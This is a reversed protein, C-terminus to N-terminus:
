LDVGHMRLTTVISNAIRKGDSTEANVNITFNRDIPVWTIGGPSSFAPASAPAQRYAPSNLFQTSDELLRIGAQKVTEAVKSIGENLTDITKLTLSAVGGQARAYDVTSASASRAAGELDYLSDTATEGAESAYQLTTSASGASRSLSEASRAVDTLAESQMAAARSMSDALSTSAKAATAAAATSTESAERATKGVDKLGDSAESATESVRTLSDEFMETKQESPVASKPQSAQAGLRTNIEQLTQLIPHIDYCQEKITVLEDHIMGTMVRITDLQYNGAPDVGPLWKNLTDQIALLQSFIERTTVEIRGVDKEIRRGQFYQLGGFIADAIGTFLNTWAMFGGAMGGSAGKM